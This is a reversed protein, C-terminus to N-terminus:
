TGAYASNAEPDESLIVWDNGAPRSTLIKDAVNGGKGDGNGWPTVVLQVKQFIQWRFSIVGYLLGFRLRPIFAIGLAAESM